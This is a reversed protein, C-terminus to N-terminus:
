GIPLLSDSGFVEVPTTMRVIQFSEGYYMGSQSGRFVALARAAECSRAKPPPGIQTSFLSLAQIKLDIWESIDVVWNPTFNPEINPANYYTSSIVEYAAVIGLNRKETQPRSIVMASEFVARHDVHRDYFPVLLVHPDIRHLLNGLTQNIEQPALQGAALAPINLFVAEEVGLLSLAQRTEKETLRGTEESFVPPMHTAVTVVTVKGGSQVFRAIVGGAGLVSDDSHPALVLMKPTKKELV